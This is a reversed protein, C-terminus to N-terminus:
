LLKSRINEIIDNHVFNILANESIVLHNLSIRKYSIDLDYILDFHRQDRWQTRQKDEDRWENEITRRKDRFSQGKFISEKMFNKNSVTWEKRITQIYYAWASVENEYSIPKGSKIQKLINQKNFNDKLAIIKAFNLLSNNVKGFQLPYIRQNSLGSPDKATTDICSLEKCLNFKEVSLTHYDMLKIRQINFINDPIVFGYHLFLILNNPDNTYTYSVEENVDYDRTAANIFHDVETDLIIPRKDRLDRNLPQYHNCLDIYLVICPCGSNKCIKQNAELNKKEFSTYKSQKRKLDVLTYYENLRLTMGRSMVVGYAHRFLDFNSAWPYIAEMYPHKLIHFLVTSFVNYLENSADSMLQKEALVKFHENELTSKGLIIKPFSNQIYDLTDVELNKYMELDWKELYEQVFKKDAHLQYLINYTLVFVSFKQERGLTENLGKVQHLFEIIEFKFPFIYYPCMAHNKPVYLTREGRSIFEQAKCYLGNFSDVAVTMTQNSFTKIGQYFKYRKTLGESDEYAVVSSFNCVIIFIFIFGLILNAKDFPHTIM